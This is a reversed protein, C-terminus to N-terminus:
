LNRGISLIHPLRLSSRVPSTHPIPPRPAPRPHLKEQEAAAAFGGAAVIVLLLEDVDILVAVPEQDSYGPYKV